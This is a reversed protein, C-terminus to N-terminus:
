ALGSIKRNRPPKMRALPSSRQCSCRRRATFTSLLAPPLGSAIRAPIIAIVAKRLMHTLLVAVAMTISGMAWDTTADRIWASRSSRYPM